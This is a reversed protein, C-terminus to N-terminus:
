RVVATLFGRVAQEYRSRDANWSGVHDAGPFRLLTVLEPRAAALRASDAVPVLTDDAGHLVLTWVRVWTPDRLYNLEPWNVGFRRGALWQATATLPAPIPLPLLPLRRQAAGLDVVSGLNLMPADLIVGATRGALPSHQLFSAVIGGGMSIGVPVVATAGQGLAYQVAGDLDRWETAGYRYQGRPDAPQGEDNRYTIVLAPLGAAHVVSLLRLMEQRSTGKGHVMVAWVSGTAPSASRRSEAPVSWASFEGLPSTYAVDRYDLGLAQRPDGLYYDSDLRAPQGPRPPAGHVAIVPRVVDKDASDTRAAAGAVQADGTPWIVADLLPKALAPESARGAHLTISGSQFARIELPLQPPSHDPILADSRIQGAFYWGGGVLFAVALVAVVIVALAVRGRGSGLNGNTSRRRETSHRRLRTTM